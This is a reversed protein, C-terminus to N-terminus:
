LQSEKIFTKNSKPEDQMTFMLVLYILLSSGWGAFFTVLFIVRILTADIKFYKALGGCVGAIKKNSRAKYLKKTNRMGFSDIPIDDFSRDRAAKRHDSSLDSREDTRSGFDFDEDTHLGSHKYSKSVKQLLKNQKKWKKFAKREPTFFGLGLIGIAIGGIVPLALLLESVDVPLGLTQLLFVTAVLLMGAGLVTPFNFFDNKSPSEEKDQLFDQLTDNLDEDDMNLHHDLIPAGRQKTTSSM